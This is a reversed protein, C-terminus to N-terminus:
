YRDGERHVLGGLFLPLGEMANLHSAERRKIKALLRPSLKGDKEAIAIQERPNVNSTYGVRRMVGRTGSAHALLWVPIVAFYSTNTSTLTAYFKELSIILVTHISSARVLFVNHICFAFLVRYTLHSTLVQM